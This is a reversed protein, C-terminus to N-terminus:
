GLYSDSSTTEKLYAANYKMENLSDFKHSRVEKGTFSLYNKFLVNATSMDQM